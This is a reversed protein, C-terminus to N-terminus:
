KRAQPNIPAGTVTTNANPTIGTGGGMGPAAPKTPPTVGQGGAAPQAAQGGGAKALLAKFRAVKAPDITGQDAPTAPQAAQGKEPADMGATQAALQRDQESGGQVGAVGSQPEDMGMTQKALMQGQQSDPNVRQDTAQPTAPQAAQGSAPKATTPDSYVQDDGKQMGLAGKIANMNGQGINMQKAIAQDEPDKFYTLPPKPGPMRAIIYPDQRNAGGLWKEQEPSFKFDDAETVEDNSYGFEKLLAQAIASSFTEEVSTVKKTETSVTENIMETQEQVSETLVQKKDLTELKQMLSKLDM